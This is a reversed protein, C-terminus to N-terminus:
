PKIANIQLTIDSPISVLNPMLHVDFYQKIDNLSNIRNHAYGDSYLNATQNNNECLMNFDIKNLHILYLGPIKYNTMNNSHKGPSWDLPEKLILPKDYWESFMGYKRQSLIELNHDLKPEILYNHVIEFGITTLYPTEFTDILKILNKHYILEDIDSFMIRDYKKLLDIQIDNFISVDVYQDSSTPIEIITVNAYGNSDLYLRLNFNTSNRYLIVIDCTAIFTTYYNIWIDLFINYRDIYTFISFNMTM